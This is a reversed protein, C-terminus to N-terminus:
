HPSTPGDGPDFTEPLLVEVALSGSAERVIRSRVACPQDHALHTTRISDGVALVAYEPLHGIRGGTAYVDVANVNRRTGLPMLVVPVDEAQDDGAAVERMTLELAEQNTATGEVVIRRWPEDSDADPEFMSASVQLVERGDPLTVNRLPGSGDSGGGWRGRGGRRGGDSRGPRGSAPTQEGRRRGRRYLLYGGLGVLWPSIGSRGSDSMGAEEDIDM